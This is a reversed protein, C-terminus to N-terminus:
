RPERPVRAETLLGRPRANRVRLQGSVEDLTHRMSAMGMHVGTQPHRQALGIGDDNILLAVEHPTFVVTTHIVQCRAHRWANTYVEHAVRFLAREIRPQVRAPTGVTDVIVDIGSDESFSGALARLAPVLGKHAAPLFALARVAQDTEWKGRDAFGAIRKARATWDTDPSHQEAYRRALLGIAVFMQGATDHIDAALRDREAVVARERKTAEAGARQEGRNVLDALGAAISELFLRDASGVSAGRVLLEGVQKRGLYMPISVLEDSTADGADASKRPAPEEAAVYRALRRNRFSIRVVEVGQHALLKNLGSVLVSYEARDSLAGGLRHLADLQRVQRNLRAVHAERELAAAAMSVLAEAAGREDADLTKSAEFGLVVVGATHGDAKLPLFLFRDVGAPAALFATLESDVLEVTARSGTWRKTLLTILGPPVDTLEVPERLRPLGRSAVATFRQRRPDLLVIACARAGLLNVFAPVVRRTIARPELPRGLEAAARALTAQLAAARRESEFLRANGVALGAFAAVAELRGLEDDTFPAPAAWDVVMLGSPEGNTMLPVLGMRRLEFERTWASPVLDTGRADPIGVGRGADLLAQEAPGVVIPEMAQFREFEPENPQAGIAVRPVLRDGELVLLSARRARSTELAVSVIRELVEQLDLTSTLALAIRGLAHGDGGDIPSVTARPMAPTSAFAEQAM